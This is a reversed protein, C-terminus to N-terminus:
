LYMLAYFHLRPVLPEVDSWDVVDGVAGLEVGDLCNEALHLPNEVRPPQVTEHVLNPEIVIISDPVCERCDRRVVAGCAHTLASM